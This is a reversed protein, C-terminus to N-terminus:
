YGPSKGGNNCAAVVIPVLLAAFWVLRGRALASVRRLRTM